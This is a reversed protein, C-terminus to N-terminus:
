YKCLELTYQVIGFLIYHHINVRHYSIFSDSLKHVHVFIRSNYSDLRHISSYLTNCYNNYESVFHIIYTALSYFIFNSSLFLHLEFTFHQSKTVVQRDLRERQLLILFHLQYLFSSFFIASFEDECRSSFSISKKLQDFPFTAM